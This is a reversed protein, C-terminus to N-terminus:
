KGRYQPKRKEAFARPGEKADETGMIRLGMAHELALAQDLSMGLARVGVEKENRVALPANAAIKRAIMEATSALDALPVVKNVLGMRFADQATVPEAMMLLEMAHCWNVQRVLNSIAGDCPSVGWKAETLGFVANESAIRIDTGLVIELAGAFCFGNVASIVPKYIDRFWNIRPMDIAGGTVDATLSRIDFGTSFSKEGAGTLIMIWSDPDDKFDAVAELMEKFTETDITNMVEPRNITLWAIRDKKEYIIAM